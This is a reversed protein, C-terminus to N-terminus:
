KNSSSLIRSGSTMPIDGPALRAWFSNTQAWARSAPCASGQFIQLSLTICADKIQEVSCPSRMVKLVKELQFLGGAEGTRGKGEVATPVSNKSENM